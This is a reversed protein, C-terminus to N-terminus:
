VVVNNSCLQQWLLMSLGHGYLGSSNCSSKAKFQESGSGESGFSTLYSGHKTFVSVRNSSEAAYIKDENNIVTMLPHKLAGSGTGSRGIQRM